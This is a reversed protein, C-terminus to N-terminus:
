AEHHHHHNIIMPLDLDHFLGTLASPALIKETGNDRRAPPIPTFGDADIM